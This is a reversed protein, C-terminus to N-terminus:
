KVAAIICGKGLQAHRRMGDASRFHFLCGVVFGIVVFLTIFDTCEVHVIHSRDNFGNGEATFGNYLTYICRGSNLLLLLM